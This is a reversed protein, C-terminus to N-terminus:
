HTTENTRFLIYAEWGNKAIYQMNEVTFRYTVGSHRDYKMEKHVKSFCIHVFGLHSQANNCQTHDALMLPWSDTNRLAEYMDSLMAREEVDKIFTFDGPIYAM